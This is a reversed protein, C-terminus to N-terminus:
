FLLQMRITFFRNEPGPSGLSVSLRGQGRPVPVLPQSVPPASLDTTALVHFQVRHQYAEPWFWELVASGDPAPQIQLAPPSMAAIPVDPVGLGDRPDTGEFMEQLNTYGDKDLDGFPDSGLMGLFTLEWADNLLNGDIDGEGSAPVASLSISLVEVNLGNCTTSLVDPRGIVYVISGPLFQFTDPFDFQGGEFDFLHVPTASIDTTELTTCPGAFSDARVRLTLNTMPRSGINEIIFQAGDAADSLMPAPFVGTVLYNTHMVGMSLFDRIVDLPLPYQGPAANNFASSVRYIERALANLAQVEPTAMVVLKELSVAMQQLDYAPLTPDTHELLQRTWDGFATQKADAPRFPFLTVNTALIQRLKHEFLAAVLTNVIPINQSRTEKIAGLYAVKAAAVWAASEANLLGGSAGFAYDVTIPPVVPSPVLTVLERGIRTDKAATVVDFHPETAVIYLKQDPDLFVDAFLASIPRAPTQGVVTSALLSGSLDYLRVLTGARSVTETDSVGNLPQPTVVLDVSAHQEYGPLTLPHSTEDDPSTDKLLEELDSYGDGDGDSGSGVPDLGKPIEVYDPVGDGDSDLSAPGEKFQYAETRISTQAGGFLSRARFQLTTERFIRIATGNYLTWPGNNNLRYFIQFGPLGATLTVEVSQGFLGGPPQAAVEVVENGIGAALSFLSLFERYQNVLGFQALPHSAGLNAAQPQDLGHSSDAFRESFVSVEPPAGAIAFISSWDGANGSNLLRPATSVFPEMQFQFVNAQGSLDTVAPLTDDHDLSYAETGANFSYQLSRGTRGGSGSHLRFGYDDMVSAGTLREGDPALFEEVFAPANTGDFNYVRARDGDNFLILLKAAGAGLLTVVSDIGHDFSFGSAPGAQFSGPVPEEVPHSWLNSESPRFVLFHSLGTGTFRGAAYDSGSTIGPIQIVTEAPGGAYSIIRLTDTVGRALIALVTPSGTKISVRNGRELRQTTPLDHVLAFGAGNTNRITTTRFAPLYNWASAVFLDHFATDGAGGIALAVAQNPGVSPLHVAVPVGAESISEASLLNVRNAEEATFVLGDLTADLVRGVSFGTVGAVGSSRPAMWQHVGGPTQFGIRYSGTVRDVIVVDTLGNGDFDGSATCETDGGAYVFNHDAPAANLLGTAAAAFFISALRGHISGAIGAISAVRRSTQHFTNM